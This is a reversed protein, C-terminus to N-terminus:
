SKKDEKDMKNFVSAALEQYREPEEVKMALMGEPDKKRWDDLTWTSRGGGAPSGTSGALKVEKRGPRMRLTEKLLEINHEGLATLTQREDARARGEAIAQTIEEEVAQTAAAAKEQKLGALETALAQVKSEVAAEAAQATLGLLTLTKESFKMDIPNNNLETKRMAALTLSLEGESLPQGNKHYLTIANRNGPIDCVSCEFPEATVVPFEGTADIEKIYFGLSAGKLFGEAVDKALEQSREDSKFKPVATLKNDKLRIDEWIGVRNWHNHLMVPNSRFRSLDLRTMDVRFGYDNVTDDSLLFRKPM